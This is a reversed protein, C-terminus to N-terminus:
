RLLTELHGGIGEIQGLLELCRHNNHRVEIKAHVIVDGLRENPIIRSSIVAPLNQGRFLEIPYGGRRVGAHAGGAKL